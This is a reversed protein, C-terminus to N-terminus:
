INNIPKETINELIDKDKYEYLRLDGYYTGDIANKFVYVAATKSLPAGTDIRRLDYEREVFYYEKGNIIYIIDPKFAYVLGWGFVEMDIKGGEKMKRYRASSNKRRSQKKNRRKNRRYKRTAM